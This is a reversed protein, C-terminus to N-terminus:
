VDKDNLRITVSPSVDFEVADFSSMGISRAVPIPIAMRQSEFAMASNKKLAGVRKPHGIRLV